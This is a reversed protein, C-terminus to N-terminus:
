FSRSQGPNPWLQALTPRDIAPGLASYPGFKKHFEKCIERAKYISFLLGLCDLSLAWLLGLINYYFSFSLFYFIFFFETRMRSLARVRGGGAGKVVLCGWRGWHTPPAGRPLSLAGIARRYTPNKVYLLPQLHGRALGSRASSM